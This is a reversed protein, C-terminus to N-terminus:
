PIVKTELGQQAQYMTQKRLLVWMLRALKHATAVTAKNFGVREKLQRSVYLYEDYVQNILFKLVPRQESDNIIRWM